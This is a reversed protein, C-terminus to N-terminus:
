NKHATFTPSEIELQKLWAPAITKFLELTQCMESLRKMNEFMDNEMQFKKIERASALRNKETDVRWFSHKENVFLNLSPIWVESLTETPNKELFAGIQSFFDIKYLFAEKESTDTM